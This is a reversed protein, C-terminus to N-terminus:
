IKDIISFLKDIPKFCALASTGIETIQAKANCSQFVFFM